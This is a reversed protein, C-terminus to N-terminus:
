ILFVSFRSADRAFGYGASEYVRGYVFSAFSARLDLVFVGVKKGKEAVEADGRSFTAKAQRIFIDSKM